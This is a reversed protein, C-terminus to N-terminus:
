SIFFISQDVGLLFEYIHEETVLSNGDIIPDLREERHVDAPLHEGGPLVVVRVMHTKGKWLPTGVKLDKLVM